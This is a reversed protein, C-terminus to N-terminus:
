GARSSALRTLLTSAELEWGHERSLKSIFTEVLAEGVPEVDPHLGTNDCTACHVVDAGCLVAGLCAPCCTYRDLIDTILAYALDHPGTGHYGWTFAPGRARLEADRLLRQSGDPEDIIVVEGGDIIAGRYIQGPPHSKEAIRVAM